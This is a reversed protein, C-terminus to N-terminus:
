RPHWEGLDGSDLGLVRELDAASHTRLYSAFKESVISMHEEATKRTIMLRSAISLFSEGRARGSLVQRQRESLRPLADRREALEALGVLSQTIVIEGAAVREIAQELVSMPESKHVVGLAGAMLCGLLVPRRRDNTYTCVRYGAACVAATADVAQLAGVKGTGRLTLDLLVVDAAVEAALFTETDPFGGVFELQPILLPIGDRIVTDDDVIVVQPRAHM